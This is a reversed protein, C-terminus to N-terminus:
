NDLSFLATSLIPKVITTTTRFTQDILGQMWLTRSGVSLPNISIDCNRHPFACLPRQRGDTPRWGEVFVMQKCCFCSFKLATVANTREFDGVTDEFRHAFNAQWMGCSSHRWSRSRSEFETRTGELQMNLPLFHKKGQKFTSCSCRVLLDVSFLM